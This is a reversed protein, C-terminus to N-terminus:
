NNRQILLTKIESLVRFVEKIDSKSELIESKHYEIDKEMGSIKIDEEAEKALHGNLQAQMYDAKEKLEKIDRWSYWEDKRKKIIPEIFKQYVLWVGILGELGHRSLINAILSSASEILKTEDAV